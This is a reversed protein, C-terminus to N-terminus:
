DAQENPSMTVPTTVPSPTFTCSFSNAMNLGMCLLIPCGANVGEDLVDHLHHLLPYHAQVMAEHGQLLNVGEGFVM